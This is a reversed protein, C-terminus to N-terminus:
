FEVQYRNTLEIRIREAEAKVGKFIESRGFWRGIVADTVGDNDLDAFAAASVDRVDLGTAASVDEFGAGGVNRLLTAPGRVDWV